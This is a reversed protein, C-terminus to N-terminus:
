LGHSLAWSSTGKFVSCSLLYLLVAATSTAPNPNNAQTQKNLARALLHWFGQKPLHQVWCQCDPVYLQKFQCIMDM